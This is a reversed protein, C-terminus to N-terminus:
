RTELQRPPAAAPPEEASILGRMQSLAVDGSFRPQRFKSVLRAGAERAARSKMSMRSFSGGAAHRASPPLCGGAGPPHNPPTPEPNPGVRVNDGASDAAGGSPSQSTLRSPGKVCFFSGDWRHLSCARWRNQVLQGPLSGAMNGIVVIRSREPDTGTNIGILSVM